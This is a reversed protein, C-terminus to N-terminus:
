AGKTERELLEAVRDSISQNAKLTAKGQNPKCGAM